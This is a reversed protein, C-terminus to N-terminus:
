FKPCVWYSALPASRSGAANLWSTLWVLWAILANHGLDWIDFGEGLIQALNDGRKEELERRRLSGPQGLRAFAHYVGSKVILSDPVVIFDPQEFRPVDKIAKAFNEKVTEASPAEFAWIAFLSDSIPPKSPVDAFARSLTKFRRCKTISDSIDKPSLTTKVELLAYVSEVLWIKEPLSSYLPANRMHDVVVIDAQKSFLGDKSLILGTGVGFSKPLHEVLFNAVIAERNDGASPRHTKFNFRVRDSKRKLEEAVDAFYETFAM